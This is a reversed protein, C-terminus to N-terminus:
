VRISDGVIHQHCRLDKIHQHCSSVMGHNFHLNMPLQGEQWHRIPPNRQPIM